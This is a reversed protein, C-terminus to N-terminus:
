LLSSSWNKPLQGYYTMSKAFFEFAFYFKLVSLNYFPNTSPLGATESHHPDLLWPQGPGFCLHPVQGLGLGPRSEVKVLAEKDNRGM